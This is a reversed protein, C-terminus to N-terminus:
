RRQIANELEEIQEIFAMYSLIIQPHINTVGEFDLGEIEGRLRTWKKDVKERTWDWQNDIFCQKGENGAADRYYNGKM